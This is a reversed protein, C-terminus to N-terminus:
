WDKEFYYAFGLHILVFLAINQTLIYLSLNLFALLFAFVIVFVTLSPNKYRFWFHIHEIGFGVAIFVLGSPWYFLLMLLIIDEFIIVGIFRLLFIFPKEKIRHVLHRPETINLKLMLPKGILITLAFVFIISSLSM